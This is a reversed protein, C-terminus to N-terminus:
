PRKLGCDELWKTPLVNYMASEPVKYMAMERYSWAYPVCDKMAGAHLFQQFDEPADQLSVWFVNQFVLDPEFNRVANRRPIEAYLGM